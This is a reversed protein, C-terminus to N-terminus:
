MGVWDERMVVSPRELHAINQVVQCAEGRTEFAQTSTAGSRPANPYTVRWRWVDGDQVVTYIRLNEMRGMMHSIAVEPRLAVPQSNWSVANYTEHIMDIEQRRNIISDPV